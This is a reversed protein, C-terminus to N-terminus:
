ERKQALAGPNGSDRGSTASKSLRGAAGRVPTTSRRYGLRKATSVQGREQRGKRGHGGFIAAESSGNQKIKSTQGLPAKALVRFLMASGNLISM